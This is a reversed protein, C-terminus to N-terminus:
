GLIAKFNNYIVNKLQTVEIEKVEAIANYISKIPTDSTDTEAFMYCLQTHRISEITKNSQLSREGISIYYGKSTITKTQELSGIYGHFVVAKLKFQSLIHLTENYAKVCHLIVPLNRKAAIELQAKFVEEQKSRDINRSFDLGIEGIAVIPATELFAAAESIDVNGANWPHVGTSVFEVDPFPNGSGIEYSVVEM